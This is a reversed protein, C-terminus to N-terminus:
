TYLSKKDLNKSDYINCQLFYSGVFINAILTVIMFTIENSSGDCIHNKVTYGVM